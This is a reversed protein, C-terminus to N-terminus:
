AYQCCGGDCAGCGEPPCTDGCGKAAINEFRPWEISMSELAEGQTDFPGWPMLNSVQCYWGPGRDEDNPGFAPDKEEWFIIYSHKM